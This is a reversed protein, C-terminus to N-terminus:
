CGESLGANEYVLGSTDSITEGSIVTAPFESFRDIGFTLASSGTDLDILRIAAGDIAEGTISDFVTNIPNTFVTDVVVTTEAGEESVATAKIDTNAQTTLTDDNVTVEGSSSPLYGWFEGSNEDSEFLQMTISDGTESEVVVEFSEIQSSDKNGGIFDVRIFFLEGAVYSDAPIVPIAGSLDIKQTPKNGALNIDTPPIIPLFPGALDGSPSYNTETITVM